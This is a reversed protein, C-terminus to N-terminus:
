LQVSELEPSDYMAGPAIMWEELPIDDGYRQRMIRKVVPSELDFDKLQKIEGIKKGLVRDYIKYVLESCYIEEDSWNFGIDYHLNIWGDGMTKMEALVSGTLITKADKLRKAENRKSRAFWDEIKTLRVPEVAELVMLEGGYNLIIGVHTWVSGTAAQIATCQPSVSQQFVIDGQQLTSYEVAKAAKFKTPEGSGGCRHFSSLSLFVLVCFLPYVLKKSM